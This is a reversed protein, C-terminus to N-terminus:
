FHKMDSCPTSEAGLDLIFLYELSLHLIRLSQYRRQNGIQSYERGYLGLEGLGTIAYKIDM